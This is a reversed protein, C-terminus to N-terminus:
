SRGLRRGVVARLRSRHEASLVQMWGTAVILVTLLGASAFFPILPMPPQGVRWAVLATGLALLVAGPGYVARAVAGLRWPLSLRHVVVVFGLSMVVSVALQSWALAVIGHYTIAWWAAALGLGVRLFAATGSIDPRGLGDNVLSPINTLSEMFLSYAVLVLILPATDGLGKGLWYRLVEQAFLSFMLCVCANLYVTYRKAFVYKRQLEVLDGSAALASAMPFVSQTLRYLIGFLRSILTYPIVYTALALMSQQAGILLKDANNYTVSAIRQLYAYASFSSVQRM